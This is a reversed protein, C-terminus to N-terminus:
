PAGTGVTISGLEIENLGAKRRWGGGVKELRTISHWTVANSRKSWAGAGDRVNCSEVFSAKYVAETAAPDGMPNALSGFGPGDEVYIHSNVPSLSEDQDHADDDAGPGVHTLQTWAAGVRKWTGREKTRKFDYQIGARHGTIDGRLEMRNKGSGALLGLPLPCLGCNNEAHTSGSNRFSGINVSPLGAAGLIGGVIAGGLLGVGLGILAGIPGGIAAGIAGGVVAGSVAGVAAGELADRQVVGTSVSHSITVPAVRSPSGSPRPACMERAVRRAEKEPAGFPDSIAPDNTTDLGVDAGRQQLTHTAEHALLEQGARSSVAYEGSGFVIHRGVTYARAGVAKASRAARDDAHVRIDRFDHGLHSELHARTAEDLPQGTSQLVENMIPPVTGPSPATAAKQQLRRKNRCETCEEGGAHAGGCACTRQLRGRPVSSVPPTPARQRQPQVTARAPM